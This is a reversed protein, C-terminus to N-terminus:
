APKVLSRGTFDLRQLPAQISRREMFEDVAKRAGSWHGYDDIQIIGGPSVKDYFADLCVLVSDYWDGDLHLVSISEVEASAVTEQFLGKVMRTRDLIRLRDFLDRVEDIPGRFDGVYLEAIARDPDDATPAPLGEFTDFLWLTRDSGCAELTLALLAGSGGRATGCEVVDGPIGSREVTQVAGYLARLRANGLETYARVAAHLRSFENKELSDKVDLYRDRAVTKAVRGVWRPGRHAIEQIRM